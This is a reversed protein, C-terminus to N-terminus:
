GPPSSTSQARVVRDLWAREAAGVSVFEVGLGVPEDGDDEREVVRRVIGKIRLPPGGDVLITLECRTGIPDLVQTCVFVGSQSLDRTTAEIELESSVYVLNLEVSHRDHRRRSIPNDEVGTVAEPRFTGWRHHCSACEDDTASVPAGCEPCRQHHAIASPRTIPLQATVRRAIKELERATNFQKLQVTKPEPKESTVIRVTLERNGLGVTDGHNLRTPGTLVDANLRTGNSSGLDEVFVEEQRHIFRLHRRSIAPDNFRLACQVDRGIVTEGVPLEISDGLYELFVRPVLDILIM